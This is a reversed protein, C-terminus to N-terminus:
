EAEEEKEPFKLGYDIRSVYGGKVTIESIIGTVRVLKCLKAMATHAIRSLAMKDTSEKISDQIEKLEKETM